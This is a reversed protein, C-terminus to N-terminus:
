LDKREFLRITVIYSIFFLAIVGVSIGAIIPTTTLGKNGAIHLIFAAPQAFIILCIMFIANIIGAGKKSLAYFLPMYISALILVIGISIAIDLLSYQPKILEPFNLIVLKHIGYSTLVGFLAYLIASLYKAQVIQKRSVPLTVLFNHHHNKIDIMTAMMISGFATYIGVFYMSMEIQPIFAVSFVVLYLAITWLSSKLAIFDKRLLNLM